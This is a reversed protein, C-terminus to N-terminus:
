DDKKPLPFSDSPLQCAGNECLYWRTGDEPIDYEATFSAVENLIEEGSPNRILISLSRAPTKKLYELDKDRLKIKAPIEWRRKMWRLFGRDELIAKSMGKQTMCERVYNIVEVECGLDQLVLGTALAQLYTGFNTNDLITILAVKM